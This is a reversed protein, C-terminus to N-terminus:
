SLSEPSESSSLEVPVIVFRYDVYPFEFSKSPVASINSEVIEDVDDITSNSPMHIEDIISTDFDVLVDEVIRTIEPLINVNEDVKSNGVNDSPM